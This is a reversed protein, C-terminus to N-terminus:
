YEIDSYSIAEREKEQNEAEAKPDLFVQPSVFVKIGKYIEGNMERIARQAEKENEFTVFGFKKIPNIYMRNIRGVNQFLEEVDNATLHGTTKIHVSRGRKEHLTTTSNDKSSLDCWSTNKPKLMSVKLEIGDIIKGDMSEVAMKANNPRRFSLVSTTKNENTKIGRIDDFKEFHKRLFTDTLDKGRIVVSRPQM